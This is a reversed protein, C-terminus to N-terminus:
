RMAEDSARRVALLAAECKQRATAHPNLGGALKDLEERYLLPGVNSTVVSELNELEEDDKPWEPVAMPLATMVFSHEGVLIGDREWVRKWGM